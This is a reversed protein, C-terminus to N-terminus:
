SGKRNLGYTQKFAKDYKGTIIGDQVKSSILIDITKDGNPGTSERQEVSSGSQNIINVTVPSLSAAVGLDGNGARQLPIIAETGAEGMLGRKGGGYQFATPSDVIGGRAFKRIGGEFAMGKAAVGSFDGSTGASSGTGSAAGGFGNLIAGALPRIISARIIIRTLDELISETMKKFNFEGTKVFEVLNDELVGFTNTIGKAINDSLTGISELYSATGALLASGPLFQDSIKVLETNYEVLSIKGAEFKATLEDIGGQQAADRFQSMSIVGLKLQRNLEQLNLERLRQNYTFIDFKGDKFERNLKLLEFNVLKNNYEEITISGVLLEKNIDGLIEKITSVKNKGKDLKELKDILTDLGGKGAGSKDFETEAAEGQARIIDNIEKRIETARKRFSDASAKSGKEAIDPDLGLTKALSIRLPGLADEISAAFDLANAQFRKFM